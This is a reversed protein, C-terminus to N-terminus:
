DRGVICITDDASFYDRNAGDLSDRKQFM